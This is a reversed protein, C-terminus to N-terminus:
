LIPRAGGRRQKAGRVPAKPPEPKPYQVFRAVRNEFPDRRSLGAIQRGKLLPYHRLV